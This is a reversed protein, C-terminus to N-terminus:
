SITHICPPFLQFRGRWGDSVAFIYVWASNEHVTKLVAPANSFCIASDILMYCEALAGFAPKLRGTQPLGSKIILCKLTM